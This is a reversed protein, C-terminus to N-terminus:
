RVPKTHFFKIAFGSISSISWLSSATVALYRRVPRFGQGHVAARAASTQDGPLNLLGDIQDAGM